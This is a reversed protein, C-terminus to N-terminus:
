PIVVPITLPIGESFNNGEKFEDIRCPGPGDLSCADAWFSLVGDSGTLSVPFVVVGELTVEAGPALPARTVPSAQGNVRFEPFVADGSLDYSAAVAFTDAVVNGTNRITVRVPLDFGLDLNPVLTDHEVAPVVLDPFQGLTVTLPLSGEPSQLNLQLSTAPLLRDLTAVVQASDGANVSGSPLDFRVCASDGCLPSTAQYTLTGTGRNHVRVTATSDNGRGLFMDGPCVQLVPKQALLPLDVDFTAADIPQDSEGAYLATQNDSLVQASFRVTGQRVEIGDFRIAGAEAAVDRQFSQPTGSEDEVHLAVQAALSACGQQLSSLDVMVGVASTGAGFASPEPGCGTLLAPIALVSLLLRRRRTVLV